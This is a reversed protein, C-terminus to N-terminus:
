FDENGREDRENLRRQEELEHVVRVKYARFYAGREEKIIVNFSKM